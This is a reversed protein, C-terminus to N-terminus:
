CLWRHLPGARLLLERPSFVIGGRGGSRSGDRARARVLLAGNMEATAADDHAAAAAAGAAVEEGSLLEHM